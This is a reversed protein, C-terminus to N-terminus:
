LKLLLDLWVRVLIGQYAFLQQCSLLSSKVEIPMPEFIFGSFGNEDPQATLQVNSTGDVSEIFPPKVSLEILNSVGTM